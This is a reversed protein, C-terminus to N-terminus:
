GTRVATVVLRKHTIRSPVVCTILTLRSDKTPHLVSLDHEDVVQTSTVVYRVSRGSGDHVFVEDGTKVEGLREFPAGHRLGPAGHAALACNGLAGPLASAPFHGVGLELAADSVGQHIPEDVACRPIRIRVAPDAPAVNVRATAEDAFARGDTQGALVVGTIEKGEGQPLVPPRLWTFAAVGFALALLIEGVVILALRATAPGPVVLRV